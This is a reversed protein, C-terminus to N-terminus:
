RAQGMEAKKTKGGHVSSGGSTNKLTPSVTSVDPPLLESQRPRERNRLWLLGSSQAAHSSTCRPPVCLGQVWGQEGLVEQAVKEM